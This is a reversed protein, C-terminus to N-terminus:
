LNKKECPIGNWQKVHSVYNHAFLVIVISTKDSFWASFCHIGFISFIVSKYLYCAWYLLSLFLFTKKKNCSIENFNYKSKRVNQCSFKSYYSFITALFKKPHKDKIIKKEDTSKQAFPWVFVCVISTGTAIDCVVYNLMLCLVPFYNSVFFTRQMGIINKLTNHPIITAIHSQIAIHLMYALLHLM